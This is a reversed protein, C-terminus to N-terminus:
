TSVGFAENIRDRFLSVTQMFDKGQLESARAKVTRVGQPDIGSVTLSIEFDGAPLTEFEIARPEYKM